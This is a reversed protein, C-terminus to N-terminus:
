HPRLFFLSAVEKHIGVRLVTLLEYDLRAEPAKSQL